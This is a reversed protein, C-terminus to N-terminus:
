PQVRPDLWGQLADALVNFILYILGVLLSAAMVAQLDGILLSSTLYRGLGPWSFVTETLVAGELLAALSLALVATLPVRVNPLVHSWLIRGASLGKIRATLVYDKGFEAAVLTRVMRAIYAGEHLALILAPLALHWLANRWADWRGALATDILLLGTPGVVEGDFFIGQRGPGAAWGLGAYLTALALMAIWFTPTSAGLLAVGQCLHDPWQGRWRAAGLGLSLGIVLAGAFSVVSLEFTAAFARRVNDAIPERTLLSQGLDGEALREMYGAFQLHLPEDLGLKARAALYAEQSANQGVLQEAADVRGYFLAVFTIVLLALLATLLGVLRAGARRLGVM